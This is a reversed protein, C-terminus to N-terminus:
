PTHRHYMGKLKAVRPDRLGAALMHGEADNIWYEADEIRERIKEDDEEDEICAIYVLLQARQLSPLRPRYLPEECAARMEVENADAQFSASLDYMLSDLVNMDGEQWDLTRVLFYESDADTADEDMLDESPLHENGLDEDMSGKDFPDEDM